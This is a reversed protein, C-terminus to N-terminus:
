VAFDATSVVSQTRRYGLRAIAVDGYRHGRFRRCRRKRPDGFASFGSASRQVACPPPPPCSDLRRRAPIPVPPSAYLVVTKCAACRLAADSSRAAGRQNKKGRAARRVFRGFPADYSRGGSRGLVAAAAPRRRRRLFFIACTRPRRGPRRPRRSPGSGRPSFPMTTTEISIPRSLVITLLSLPVPVRNDVPPKDATQFLYNALPSQSCVHVTTCHLLIVLWYM